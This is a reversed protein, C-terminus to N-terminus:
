KFESESEKGSSAHTVYYNNRHRLWQLDGVSCTIAQIRAILEKLCRLLLTLTVHSFTLVRRTITTTPEHAKPM